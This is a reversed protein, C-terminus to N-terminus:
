LIPLNKKFASEVIPLSKLKPLIEKLFSKEIPLNKKFFNGTTCVYM